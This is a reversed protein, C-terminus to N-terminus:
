LSKVKSKGLWGIVGETTKVKYMGDTEALVKLEERSHLVDVVKSASTQKEYLEQPFQDVVVSVVSSVAREQTSLAGPISQHSTGFSDRLRFLSAQIVNFDADGNLPVRNIQGMPMQTWASMSAFVKVGDNMPVFTFASESRVPTSYSNGIAVRMMSEQMGEMQKSVVVRNPTDNDLSMGASLTREILRSKVAEVTVGPIFVEPNGSATKAIRPVNSACGSSLAMLGSVVIVAVAKAFM